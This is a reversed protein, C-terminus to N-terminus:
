SINVTTYPRGVWLAGGVIGRAWRPKGLFIAIGPTLFTTATADPLPPTPFDVVAPLEM